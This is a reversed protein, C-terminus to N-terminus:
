RKVGDSTLTGFWYACKSCLVDAGNDVPHIHIDKTHYIGPRNTLIPLTTYTGEGCTPCVVVGTVRAEFQQALEENRASLKANRIYLRAIREELEANHAELGACKGELPELQKAFREKESQLKANQKGLTATQKRLIGNRTDLDANQSELRECKDLLAKVSDWPTLEECLTTKHLSHACYRNTEWWKRTSLTELLQEHAMAISMNMKGAAKRDVLRENENKLKANEAELRGSQVYLETNLAELTEHKKVLQGNRRELAANHIEFEVNQVELTQCKDMLGKTQEWPQRDDSCVITIRWRGARDREWLREDSLITPIYAGNSVDRAVM